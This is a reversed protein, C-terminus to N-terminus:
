KLHEVPEFRVNYFYYGGVPDIDTTEDPIFGGGYWGGDNKHFDGEGVRGILYADNHFSDKIGIKTIKVKM